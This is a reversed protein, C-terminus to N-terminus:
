AHFVFHLVLFGSFSLDGSIRIEAMGRQEQAVLVLDNCIGTARAACCRRDSALRALRFFKEGDCCSQLGPEFAFGM